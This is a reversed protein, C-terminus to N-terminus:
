NRFLRFSQFLKKFLYIISVLFALQDEPVDTDWFWLAKYYLGMTVLWAFGFAFALLSVIKITIKLIFNNPDQSSTLTNENKFVLTKRKRAM